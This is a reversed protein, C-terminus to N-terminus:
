ETAETTAVPRTLRRVSVGVDHREDDTWQHPRCTLNGITLALVQDLLRDAPLEDSVTGAQAEAISQDNDHIFQAASPVALPMGPREVYQWLYLRVLHPQSRYADFVQQAYGAVDAPDLTVSRQAALVNHELVADFLGGKSGFYAYIMRTNIKAKGAIRAVRGGALGHASFEDTAADLIRRRSAAADRPTAAPENTPQTTATSNAM